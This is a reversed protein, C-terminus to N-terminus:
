GGGVWWGAHEDKFFRGFGPGSAVAVEGRAGVADGM